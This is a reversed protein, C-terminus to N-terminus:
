AALVRPRADLGAEALFRSPGDTTRGGRVHCRTLVLHDKARTAAVYFLRREEELDAPDDSELARWSPLLREECGLLVVLQAETGKARHITSITIRRDEGPRVEEAHLGAAHELFGSVSAGAGHHEGFAQAARCLSRLDELVRQGDRREDARPSGDRRAQHHAVLGGAVTLTAVVVHALSRGARYEGRVAELGTGFEGLRARTTASRVGPLQHAHASATILDGAHHERAAAIVHAVTATGAGRRPAQVARRFAQADAPNSLLALYALADRVEAREYLGLSGLVRHPIGAAALASQIPITAFGTRALVLIEGPAAGAALADAILGSAWAAEDRDLAFGRTTIRGGTGRMAALANPHRDRNHGVCAAAASLLEARSRFNRGLVVREHRPYRQGFALINRPEASRFRYIAQDDDGVVTVNGDSGALLHVLEAQAHNTDQMEDVLLWKWRGRLYALRSPHEHLLRVTFSLLDEFAWANSRELETDLARWAAAVVEAGPHRHQRLYADPTLLRSKALALEHEIEAAPPQGHQALAAQLEAHRHDALLAELVRRLDAQDYITYTESRGFVGAHHRLIRACLAHFTSALVSRAVHEGLLDALRLRLEGAARVSFTLALIERPRARGTALLHAVRHTLTRTKGTGPGAVILLPGPGHRVAARQDDTLGHLLAEPGPDPPRPDYVGALPHPM